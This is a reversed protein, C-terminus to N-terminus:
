WGERGTRSQHRAEVQDGEVKSIDTEGDSQRSGHGRSSNVLGENPMQGPRTPREVAGRCRCRARWYNVCHSAGCPHCFALMSCTQTRAAPPPAAIKPPAALEDAAEDKGALVCPAADPPMLGSSAVQLTPRPSARRPPPLQVPPCGLSFRRFFAVSPMPNAILQTCM